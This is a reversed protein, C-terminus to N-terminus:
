PSKQKSRQKMGSVDINTTSIRQLDPSRHAVYGGRKRQKARLSRQFRYYSGTEYKFVM